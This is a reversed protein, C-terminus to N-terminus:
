EILAKGKDTIEYDGRCGCSCGDVLGRRILMNMKARVLNEPVGKPMARTVSNDYREFWTAWPRNPKYDAKLLFQLIPLNPIDKCQM